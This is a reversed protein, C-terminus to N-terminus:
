PLPRGNPHPDVLFISKIYLVYVTVWPTESVEPDQTKELQLQIEFSRPNALYADNINISRMTYDDSEIEYGVIGIPYYGPINELAHRAVMTWSSNGDYVYPWRDRVIM